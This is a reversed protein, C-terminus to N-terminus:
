KMEPFISLIEKKTAGCIGKETILGTILRSPTIDFGYNLANSNKPSLRVSEIKGSTTLGEAFHVEETGREEVPIHGIGEPLKWDISSSPLAVYFPIQNDYAALAKLYTGIKNATDGNLATRDSGTILLDVMGQQMIHGGTNDTIITHPVGHQGLEWATLRAGQNRPRTEDVWVNVPLGRDHALYIPAMATGYDVTALWGANCHTMIQVPKGGNESYINEIIELGHKGIERCANIENDLFSQATSFSRAVIQESQKIDKIAVLMYDVAMGLNIATPRTSKLQNAYKTLYNQIHSSKKEKMAALHIGFAATVGILPAGRVQMDSIARIVDEPSKLTCIKLEFPLYRQDIIQISSQDDKNVWISQYSKGNVKM